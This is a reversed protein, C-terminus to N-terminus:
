AYVEIGARQFAEKTLLGHAGVIDSGLVAKPWFRMSIWRKWAQISFSGPKKLDRNMEKLKANAIAQLRNLKLFDGLPVFFVAKITDRESTTQGDTGLKGEAKTLGVGKLENTIGTSTAVMGAGLMTSHVADLNTEEKLEKKLAEIATLGEDPEWKGAPLELVYGVARRLNLEVPVKLDLVTPRIKHDPNVVAVDHVAATIGKTHTIIWNNPNGHQPVYVAAEDTDRDPDFPRFVNSKKSEYIKKYGIQSPDPPTPYPFNREELRIENQNVQLDLSSGAGARSNQQLLGRAIHVDMGVILGAAQPNERLFNEFKQNDAFTDVPVLVHGTVGDKQSKPEHGTVDVRVTYMLEGIIGPSKAYGPSKAIGRRNLVTAKKPDLSLETEMIRNITDVPREDHRWIGGPMELCQKEGFAGRRTIDLVVYQNGDQPNIWFPIAHIVGKANKRHLFIKEKEAEEKPRYLELRDSTEDLDIKTGYETPAIPNVRLSLRPSIASLPM